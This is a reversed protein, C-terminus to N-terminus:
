LYLNTKPIYGSAICELTIYTTVMHNQLICLAIEPDQVATNRIFCLEYRGTESLLLNHPFRVYSAWKEGDPQWGQGGSLYCHWRPCLSLPFMFVAGILKVVPPTHSENRCSPVHCVHRVTPSIWGPGSQPWKRAMVSATKEQTFSRWPAACVQNITWGVRGKQWVAKREMELKVLYDNTLMLIMAHKSALCLSLNTARLSIM